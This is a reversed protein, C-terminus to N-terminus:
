YKAGINAIFVAFATLPNLKANSSEETYITSLESSLAERAKAQVQDFEFPTRVIRDSKTTSSFLTNSATQMITGETVPHM